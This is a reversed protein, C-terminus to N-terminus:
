EHDGGRRRSRRFVNLAIMVLLMGFSLGVLWSAARAYASSKLNIRVTEGFEVGQADALRLNLYAVGTGFLQTPIEVSKRKGPQITIAGIDNPRVRVTPEGTARIRITVPVSLDNRITVPVEARENPFIVTGASMIKVSSAIDGIETQQSAFLREEENDAFNASALRMRANAANTEISTGAIIGRVADLAEGIIRIHRLQSRGVRTSIDGNIRSRIGIQSFAMADPVSIASLWPATLSDLTDTVGDYSIGRRSTNPRVVMVRELSPRELTAILLDSLLAQRNQVAQGTHRMANTFYLSAQTDSVLANRGDPAPIVGGPTSYSTTAVYRQDNVVNLYLQQDKLWTWQDNNFDGGYAVTARAIDSRDLLTFLSENQIVARQAITTLGRKLLVNLDVSAYPLSYVHSDTTALRLAALWDSASRQQSDSVGHPQPYVVDTGAAILQATEVADPDILWALDSRGAAGKVIASVTGADAFQDVSYDNLIRQNTTVAPSIAVTWLPLVRLPRYHETDKIVPLLLTTSSQSTSVRANVRIVYAGSASFQLRNAPISITVSNDGKSLQPFRQSDVGRDSLSLKGSLVDPIQSRGILPSMSQAIDIILPKQTATSSRVHVTLQVAEAGTVWNPSVSSVSVSIRAAADAPMVTGVLALTLAILTAAVRRM